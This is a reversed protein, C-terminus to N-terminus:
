EDRRLEELLRDDLALETRGLAEALKELKKRRVFEKLAAEITETFSKFGALEMAEQLLKRDVYLTTKM